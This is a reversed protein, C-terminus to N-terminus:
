RPQGQSCGGAHSSLSNFITLACGYEQMSSSMCIVLRVRCLTPTGAYADVKSALKFGECPRARHIQREEYARMVPVVAYQTDVDVVYLPLKEPDAHASFILGVALSAREDWLSQFACADVNIVTAASQWFYFTSSTQLAPM